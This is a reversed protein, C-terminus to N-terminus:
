KYDGGNKKIEFGINNFIKYFEENLKELDDYIEYIRKSLENITYQAAVYIYKSILKNTYWDNLNEPLEEEVFELIEGLCLDLAEGLDRFREMVEKFQEMKTKVKIM